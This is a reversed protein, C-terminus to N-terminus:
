ARPDPRPPRDMLAMLGARVSARRTEGGSVVIATDPLLERAREREDAAVVVVLRGVAPHRCLAAAARALVPVGAITRFQKSVGGARRGRGGAVLIAAVDSAPSNSM